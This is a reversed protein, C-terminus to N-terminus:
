GLGSGGIADRAFVPSSSFNVFDNRETMGRDIDVTTPNGNPAAGLTSETEFYSMKQKM